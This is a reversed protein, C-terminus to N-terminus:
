AQIFRSIIWYDSQKVLYAQERYCVRFYFLLRMLEIGVCFVRLQRSM